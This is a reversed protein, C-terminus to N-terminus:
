RRAAPLAGRQDNGRRAAGGGRLGARARGQEDALFHGTRWVSQLVAVGLEPNTCLTMGLSGPRSDAEPRFEAEIFMGAKGLRALYATILNFETHWM